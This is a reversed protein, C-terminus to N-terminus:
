CITFLCISIFYRFLAKIQLDSYVSRLLTSRSVFIGVLPFRICHFHKLILDSTGLGWLISESLRHPGSWIFQSWIAFCEIVCKPVWSWVISSKKLLDHWIFLIRQWFPNTSFFLTILIWNFKIDLKLNLFFFWPLIEFNLWWSSLKIFKWMALLYEYLFNLYSNLVIDHSLIFM